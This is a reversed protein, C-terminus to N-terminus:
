SIQVSIAKRGTLEETRVDPAGFGAYLTWVGSGPIRKGDDTVVPDMHIVADCNLEEGLRREIEDIAEM